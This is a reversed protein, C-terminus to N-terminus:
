VEKYTLTKMKLIVNKPDESGFIGQGSILINAGAEVVLSATKLDIGGDVMIDLNIGEKTARERLDRIKKLCFPLFEQGGYGPNVTMLLVLDVEGLLYDLTSLSTSPNLTIFPRVKHDRIYKLLRQPHYTNEIHFGLHDAGSEIFMDVFLEPKEVMLHVNLPLNFKKKIAKVLSPGYSLNPVFHGDMIDIHLADSYEEVLKISKEMNLLDASLISPFVQIKM